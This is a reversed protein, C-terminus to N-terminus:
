TFDSPVSSARSSMVSSHRKTPGCRRILSAQTIRIGETQQLHDLVKKFTLREVSAQGSGKVASFKGAPPSCWIM